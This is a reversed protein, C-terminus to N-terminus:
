CMIYLICKKCNIEHKIKVYSRNMDLNKEKNVNSSICIGGHRLLNYSM